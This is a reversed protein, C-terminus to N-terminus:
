FEPGAYLNIYGQRTTECTTYGKKARCSDCKRFIAELMWPMLFAVWIPLLMQTRLSSVIPNGVNKFWRTNFDPDNGNFFFLNSNVLMAQLATNFFQSMFIAMTIYTMKSTETSFGTKNFVFIILGHIM